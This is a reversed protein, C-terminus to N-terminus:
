ASLIELVFVELVILFVLKSPSKYLTGYTYLFVLVGEMELIIEGKLMHTSM